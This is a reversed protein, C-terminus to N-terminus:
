RIAQVNSIESKDADFLAIALLLSMLNDNFRWEPDFSMAYRRHEEYLKKNAEKLLEM